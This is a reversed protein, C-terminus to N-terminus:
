LTLISILSVGRFNPHGSIVFCCCLCIDLISIAKLIYSPLHLPKSPILSSFSYDCSPIFYKFIWLLFFWKFVTCKFHSFHWSTLNWVLYIKNCYFRSFFSFCNKLLQKRPHTHLPKGLSVPFHIQKRHFFGQIGKWHGKKWVSLCLSYVIYKVFV